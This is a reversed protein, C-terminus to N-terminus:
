AREFLARIVMLKGERLDRTINQIRQVFAPGWLITQGPPQTSPSAGPPPGSTLIKETEDEWVLERFAAEEILARVADPSHLFSSEQTSAWPLPYDVGETPGKMVEHM